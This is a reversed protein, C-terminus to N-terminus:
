KTEEVYEWTRTFLNKTRRSRIFPFFNQANSIIKNYKGNDGKEWVWAGSDVFFEEDGTNLIFFKQRKLLRFIKRQVTKQRKKGRIWTIKVPVALLHSIDIQENDM